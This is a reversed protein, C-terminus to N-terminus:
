DHIDGPKRDRSSSGPADTVGLALQFTVRLSREHALLWRKREVGAGYGTLSGDAGIVRHCPLVLGIPNAGNALGVARVASPRGVRRALEAYSRTEGVPIAALARWVACQFLTGHVVVPLAEIAALEGAFYRELAATLGGPNSEGVLCIAPSQAYIRLQRQMRAHKEVFGSARLHGREDAVIAFQGIPTDFQDVRLQLTRTM